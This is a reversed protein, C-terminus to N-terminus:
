RSNPDLHQLKQQVAQRQRTLQDPFHAYLALAQEYAARAADLNGQQRLVDGLLSRSDAEMRRASPAYRIAQYGAIAGECYATAEDLRGGALAVEGLRKLYYATNSPSGLRASLRWAARYHAEAAPLDQDQLAYAGLFGHSFVLYELAEGTDEGTLQAIIKHLLLRAQSTQEDLDLGQALWYM